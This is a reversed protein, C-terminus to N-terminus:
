KKKKAKELKKAAARDREEELNIGPFLDTVRGLPEDEGFIVEAGKKMNSFHGERVGWYRAYLASGGLVVMSGFVLLYYIFMHDAM